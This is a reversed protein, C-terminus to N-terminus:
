RKKGTLFVFLRLRDPVIAPLNALDQPSLFHLLVRLCTAWCTACRCIIKILRDMFRVHCFSCGGRCSTPRCMWSKGAESWGNRQRGANQFDSLLCVYSVPSSKPHSEVRDTPKIGGNPSAHPYLSKLTIRGLLIERSYDKKQNHKQTHTHTTPYMISHFPSLSLNYIM